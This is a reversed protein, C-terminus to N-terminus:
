VFKLKKLAKYIKEGKPLLMIDDKELAKTVFILVLYVIAAAGVALVTRIMSSSVPLYYYVAFATLACALAAIFPKIFLKRIKPVFGIKKAVFFFNFLMTVLYCLFTGIPAAFMVTRYKPICDILKIVDGSTYSGYFGLSKGTTFSLQRAASVLDNAPTNRVPAGYISGIVGILIFTSLLKIVAGSIMSVIPLQQHGHAQLFSNTVSLMSLFFISPALVSLLPAAADVAFQDKFLIGLLPKALASMGLACPLSIIATLKLSSNMTDKVLKTDKASVARSLLPVISASIPYILAPPLNFMTVALAKYNGFLAASLEKTYGLSQLRTSLIMGDIVNTLSMVSSSITIPIGIMFLTKIVTKTPTRYEEDEDVDISANYREEKFFLKTIFLYIMGLATGVTLGVLAYAAVIHLQYGQRIAYTAFLIGLAFKGIAEIVESIATPTMSQHGQFYGRFASSICVLLLTPSIVLICWEIPQQYRDAFFKSFAAMLATGIIGISMFVAFIVKFMRKSDKFRGKARAGSIMISVAIPLGVTSITYFWVYIEYAAQYYGIGENGLLNESALPVKLFAGLIKVLLNSITLIIVGSFFLNKNNKAKLESPSNSRASHRSM